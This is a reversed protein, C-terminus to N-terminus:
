NDKNDKKFVFFNSFLFNLVMGALIGIGQPIVTYKWEFFHLLMNLTLLNVFFAFLSGLLFRIYLKFSLPRGENETKFTWIHNLCYNQSACLLFCLFSVFSPNLHALDSLIFFLILNTITGLGGTIGFKLLKKLM